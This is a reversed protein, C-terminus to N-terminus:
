RCGPGRRRRALLPLPRRVSGAFQFNKMHSTRFVQSYVENMLESAAEPPLVRQALRLLEYDQVARRMGEYRLTLVPGGHPGPLVFYM